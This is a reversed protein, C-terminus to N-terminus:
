FRVTTTRIKLHGENSAAGVIGSILFFFLHSLVHAVVYLLSSLRSSGLSHCPSM